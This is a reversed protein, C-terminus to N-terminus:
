NTPLTLHTYSVTKVTIGALPVSLMGGFVLFPALTWDIIQNMSLYMILGVMCTVGEAFSTIGIANKGDIGSLLQGSTVVPGYGGGSMGKNFSAVVSLGVIKKWSFKYVKKNTVLILIGMTLILLGIYFKVYFKPLSVALLVAGVTGIISCAAILLSIKLHHPLYSKLNSLFKVQNNKVNLTGHPLLNVNGMKSHILGAFIGTFLESLLICPVIQMPQYGLLLLIPTLSTGYGMGLTSDFYEAVFAMFVVPLGIQLIFTWEM